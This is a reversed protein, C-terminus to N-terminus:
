DHSRRSEDMRDLEMAILAGALALREERQDVLGETALHWMAQTILDGDSALQVQGSRIWRLAQGIAGLGDLPVKVNRSTPANAPERAEERAQQRLVAKLHRGCAALAEMEGYYTIKPAWGCSCWARHDASGPRSRFFKDMDRGTDVNHGPVDTERAFQAQGEHKRVYAFTADSM